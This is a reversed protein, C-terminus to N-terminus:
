RWASCSSMSSTAARGASITAPSRFAIRRRRQHRGESRADVEPRRLDLGDDDPRVVGDDALRPVRSGGLSPRGLHRGCDCSGDLLRGLRGAHGDLLEAADADPRRAGDVLVGAGDGVRPVQGVPVLGKRERGRERVREVSRDPDVVVDLDGNEALELQAGARGYEENRPTQHPVPTPPPM